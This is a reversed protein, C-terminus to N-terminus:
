ETVKLMFRVFGKIDGEFSKFAKNLPKALTLVKEPVINFTYINRALHRFKRYDDIMECTERSIISPRVGKIEKTMNKLLVSHM